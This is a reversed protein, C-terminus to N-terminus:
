PEDNRTEWKERWEERLKEVKLELEIIADEENDAEGVPVDPDYPLPAAYWQQGEQWTDIKYHM